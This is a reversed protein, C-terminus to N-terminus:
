RRKPAASGDEARPLVTCVKVRAQMEYHAGAASGAPAATSSRAVTASDRSGDEGM